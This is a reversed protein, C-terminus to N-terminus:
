KLQKSSVELYPVRCFEVLKRPVPIIDIIHLHLAENLSSYMYIYSWLTPTSRVCRSYGEAAAQQIAKGCLVRSCLEGM